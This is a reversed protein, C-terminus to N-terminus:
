DGKLKRGGGTHLLESGRIKVEERGERWIECNQGLVGLPILRKQGPGDSSLPLFQFKSHPPPALATFKGLM